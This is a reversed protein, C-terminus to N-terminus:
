DVIGKDVGNLRWRMEKKKDVAAFFPRLVEEGTKRM